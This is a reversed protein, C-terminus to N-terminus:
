DAVLTRCACGAPWPTVTRCSAGDSPASTTRSTLPWLSWFDDDAPSRKLLAGCETRKAWAPFRVM